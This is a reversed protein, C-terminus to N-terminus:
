GEVWYQKQCDPCMVRFYLRGVAVEMGIIYMKHEKDCKKCHVRFWMHRIDLKM